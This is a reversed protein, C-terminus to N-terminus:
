SLSNIKLKAEDFSRVASRMRGIQRRFPSKIMNEMLSLLEDRVTKPITQNKSIAQCVQDANNLLQISFTNMVSETVKAAATVLEAAAEKRQLREKSLEEQAPTTVM